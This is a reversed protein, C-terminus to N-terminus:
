FPVEEDEDVSNSGGETEFGAPLSANSFEETASTRGDLRPMASRLIQVSNLGLSVGINSGSSYAFPTVSLRALQGPWVEDADIILESKLNVVGCRTKSWPNIFTGGDTFGQKGEKETNQRLPLKLKKFDVKEGFRAKAVDAIAMQLARYDPTKLTEPAFILTCSYRPEQGQVIAKPVWLNPYSLMGPPTLIKRGSTPKEGSGANTNSAM